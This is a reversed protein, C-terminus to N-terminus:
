LHRMLSVRARTSHVVVYVSISFVWLSFIARFFSLSTECLNEYKRANNDNLLVGIFAIM